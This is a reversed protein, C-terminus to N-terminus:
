FIEMVPVVVVYLGTDTRVLARAVVRLIGGTSHITRTIVHEKIDALTLAVPPLGM